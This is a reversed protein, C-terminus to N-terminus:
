RKQLRLWESNPLIVCETVTVALTFRFVLSQCNTLISNLCAIPIDTYIASWYYIYIYIHVHMMYYIYIFSVYLLVIYIYIYKYTIAIYYIMRYIDWSRSLDYHLREGDRSPDKSKCPDSSPDEWIGSTPQQLWQSSCSDPTSVYKAVQEGTVFCDARSFYFWSICFGVSFRCNMRPIRSLTAMDQCTTCHVTFWWVELAMRYLFMAPLCHLNWNCPCLVREGCGLFVELPIRNWRQERRKGNWSDNVDSRPHGQSWSRSLWQWNGWHIDTAAGRCVSIWAFSSPLKLVFAREAYAPCM